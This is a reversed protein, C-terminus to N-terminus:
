VTEAARRESGLAAAPTELMRQYAALQLQVTREASHYDRVWQASANGIGDTDGPDLIVSRMRAAIELPSSAALIPPAEGFFEALVEADIATILRRGITLTEVGVAGMAPIIFQDLVAHCELYRQMLGQKNTPEVWEIPSECGLERILNESLEVEKGWRTLILRFRRGEAHLMAAARILRDNGKLWSSDGDRWHHRTPCFFTVKDSPPRLSPNARAFKRVKEDDYAHALCVIRDRPIGLRAASPLVDTNTIFVSPSRRYVFNCLRGLADNQFPIERITGHEYSAFATVGGMLPYLGDIAYGQVIDYHALVDTWEPAGFAAIAAAERELSDAPVAHFEAKFEAVLRANTEARTAVLRELRSREALESATPTPPPWVAGHLTRALSRARNGARSLLTRTGHWAMATTLRGCLLLLRLAKRGSNAPGSCAPDTDKELSAQDTRELQASLRPLLRRTARVLFRDFFTPDASHRVALFAAIIEARVQWKLQSVRMESRSAMLGPVLWGTLATRAISLQERPQGLWARASLLRRAASMTLCEFKGPLAIGRPRSNRAAQQELLEWYDHELRLRLLAAAASDNKHRARFYALVLPTPGNAFWDPRKFGGLSTAWWDPFFPDDVPAALSGDEWEPTGMVHYYHPAAVDAEIGFRRQIRANFYANNAINGIHLIRLPRGHRAEFQALWDSAAVSALEARTAPRPANSQIHAM